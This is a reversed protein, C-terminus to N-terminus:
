NKQAQVSGQHPRVNLREQLQNIQQNQLVSGFLALSSTVLMGVLCLWIHSRMLAIENKRDANSHDSEAKQQQRLGSLQKLHDVIQDHGTVIAQLRSEHDLILQELTPPSYSPSQPQPPAQTQYM